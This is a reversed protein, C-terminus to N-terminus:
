ESVITLRVVPQLRSSLKIIVEHTGKTKISKDVLVQGKSVNVGKEALLDVIDGQSVAGYLKGDDHMKRKLTLKIDKIKEALMSTETAVVQKRNEVNKAKKAYFAANADTVEFALDRPMLYNRAFGDTVSIIEGALGVKEIDKKLFVKMCLGKIYLM